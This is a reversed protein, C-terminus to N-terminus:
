ADGCIENDAEPTERLEIVEGDPGKFYVIWVNARFEVPESLFEVGAERLRRHDARTDTSRLGMHIWGHDAQTRDPAVTQGIPDRYEFLELMSSGLLLHAIRAHCDPLGVVKGLLSGPGCDLTRLLSFGLHDCYFKVSCDLDAVSLAVHEIGESM